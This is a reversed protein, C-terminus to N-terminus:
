FLDKIWTRMSGRVKDYINKERIQFKAKSGNRAGYKLLGVGTAFKPSNVVDRLGGIGQPIGRKVPMEFIFEAMEPMGELLSSGGTIVVGGSLVDGHGSQIVERQILSFMEEVRPEIIEALLRRPVMRPKRGGVGAVEITEDPRVLSALGCGHAIKLKEAEHQPCRLGVAIDNTIHNGGIALVGTYVIAGDKFIAIDSTGGGIDVLVVGLDKEDESLVAAASAIPELCIETVNLGAKNACKIINQASSVAGTVIHVKGELRMGNMGIPDRIGDQGDIIFEQPMIHIVERDLPIAVAKAADICRQVDNENIEKDKVAVVGSSNFSKIHGGAIGTFVSSIEVGAMLEAEEVAKTISEVTSDINIVVGKRLGVSPAAGIGIIDITPNPGREHVEGVICCIKTTGIDLGVVFDKKSM